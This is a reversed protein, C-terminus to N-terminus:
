TTCAPHLTKKQREGALSGITKQTEIDINGLYAIKKQWNRLRAWLDKKSNKSNEGYM